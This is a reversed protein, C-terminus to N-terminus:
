RKSNAITKLFEAKSGWIDPDSNYVAQDVKSLSDWTVTPSEDRRTTPTRSSDAAPAAPRRDVRPAEALKSVERDVARLATAITKGAQIQEVYVRQAIATRPDDPNMIWPNDAEWEVEEPLKQAEQVPQDQKLQDLEGDLRKVEKLDATLVADERQKELQQKTLELQRAHFKNLNAMQNRMDELERRYKTEVKYREKREAFAEPPIWTNPDKGEAILDEKTKYGKPLEPEPQKEEAEQEVEPLEEEQLDVDILEDTM